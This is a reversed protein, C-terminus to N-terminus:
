GSFGAQLSKLYQIVAASRGESVLDEATKYDFVQLPENRFWFIAKEVSGSVDVAACLVRVVEKLFSQVAPSAPARTVTNRHVHAKAALSQVDLQLVQAFRRPSIIAAPLSEENLFAMFQSFNKGFVPPAQEVLKEM